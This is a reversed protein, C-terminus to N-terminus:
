WLFYSPASTIIGGGVATNGWLHREDIYPCILSDYRYLSEIMRVDAGAGARCPQRKSGWSLLGDRYIM